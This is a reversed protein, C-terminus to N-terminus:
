GVYPVASLTKFERILEIQRKSIYTILSHKMDSDLDFAVVVYYFSDYRDIRLIKAHTNLSLNDNKRALTTSLEISEGDKMGVLLSNMKLKMGEISIDVISIEGLFEKLKFFLSVIHDAGPELRIVKRKTPNSRMFKLNTATICNLKDNYSIIKDCWIFNPLLGSGIILANEYKSAILQQENVKITLVGGDCSMIEAKNTISLGKYFNYVHMDKGKELLLHM